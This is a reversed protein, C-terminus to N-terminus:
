PAALLEQGQRVLVVRGKEQPRRELGVLGLPTARLESLSTAAASVEAASLISPWHGYDLSM